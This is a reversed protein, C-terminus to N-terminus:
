LALIQSAVIVVVVASAAAFALKALFAPFARGEEKKGSETYRNGYEAEYERHTAQGLRENLLPNM